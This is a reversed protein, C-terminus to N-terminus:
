ASVKSTLLATMGSEIMDPLNMQARSAENITVNSATMIGSKLLNVRDGMRTLGNEYYAHSIGVVDTLVKADFWGQYQLDHINLTTQANTYFDHNSYDVNILLPVLSTHWDNVQIHNISSEVVPLLELVARNFFAFREVDDGYGYIEERNFYYENGVFYFTVSDQVLKFLDAGQERWGVKITASQVREMKSTFGEDICAYKPLVVVVNDHDKTFQLATDGLQGLTTFPACETVVYLTKDKDKEKEKETVDITENKEKKAKPKAKSKAKPKVAQEVQVQTDKGNGFNNNLLVLAEEKLVSQAAKVEIGLEHCFTIIEKSTKGHQRAFEYVRM